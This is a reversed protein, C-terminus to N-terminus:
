SPFSVSTPAAAERPAASPLLWGPTMWARRTTHIMVELQPWSSIMLKALSCLHM